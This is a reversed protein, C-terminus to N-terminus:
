WQKEALMNMKKLKRFKPSVINTRLQKWVALNYTFKATSVALNVANNETVFALVVKTWRLFPLIM